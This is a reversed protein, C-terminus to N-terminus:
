PPKNTKLSIISIYVQLITSHHISETSWAHSTYARGYQNETFQAGGKALTFLGDLRRVLNAYWNRALQAQLATEEKSMERMYGVIWGHPGALKSAVAGVCGHDVKVHLGAGRNGTDVRANLHCGSYYLVSSVFDFAKVYEPKFAAPNQPRSNRPLAGDVFYTDDGTSYQKFIEEAQADTIDIEEPRM